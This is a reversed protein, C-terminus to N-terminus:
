DSCELMLLSLVWSEWYRWDCHRISNNFVLREGWYITLLWLAILLNPLSLWRRLSWGGGETDIRRSWSSTVLRIPVHNTLSQLVGIRHEKVDRPQFHLDRRGGYVGNM